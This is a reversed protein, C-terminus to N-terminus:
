ECRCLLDLMKATGWSEKIRGGAIRMVVSGKMSGQKWQTPHGADAGLYCGQVVYRAAVKDGASYFEEIALREYPFGAVAASIWHKYGNPGSRIRPHVGHEVFDDAYLADVADLNGQNWVEEFARHAIQENSESLSM